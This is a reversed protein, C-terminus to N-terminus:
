NNLILHGEEVRILHAYPDNEVLLSGDLDIYDALAALTMAESIGLSSEIMCGVMTKLGFQKGKLLLRKATELGRCKMIKINIGHFMKQFDEGKFDLLVSEDAIIPFLSKPYLERYADKMGVSFPQEIFEINFNKIKEQFELFGELSKFGENADVRLPKDTHKTVEELLKFSNEDSVKLKYFHFQSNRKLYDEVESVEMIPISFSTKMAEVKPIDLAKHLDGDNEHKLLVNNIASQFSNAWTLNMKTTKNLEKFHSEILKSDEYYRVNPAVESEHGNFSIVFNEKEDSSNRSLKWTTKLKLNIKKIEYM